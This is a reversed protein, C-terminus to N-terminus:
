MTAQDVASTRKVASVVGIPLAVLLALAFAALGLEFTAPLYGLVVRFASQRFHISQGFDGRLVNGLFVVYQVPLPRDLGLEARVRAFESQPADPPLLLPVPDGSLRMVVFVVTSVLWLAIAARILRSALFPLLGRMPMPASGRPSRGPFGTSARRFKFNFRRIELQQLPDPTWEVHKQLGYDEYPQIVPLWPLYELFLQTMKKYADARFKEDVSFRAANG